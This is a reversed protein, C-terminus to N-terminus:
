EIFGARKFPYYIRYAKGALDSKAVFGFYRSDQSSASYDGLVFYAGNPITVPKGGQAYEGKNYYHLKEFPPTKLSQGNIYIAGDKIELTEGPLGVLRKIILEEANKPNIFVVVDGRAPEQKKYIVKDALILDGKLLTPMMTGSPIKFTQVVHERIYLSINATIIDSPNLNIIISFFIIGLILWTKKGITIARNLDNDINYEKSLRYADVAAFIRYIFCGIVLAAFSFLIFDTTPPNKLYLMLSVIPVFPIIFLLIGRKIEGAYIQGLGTIILSLMTALLPEKPKSNDM